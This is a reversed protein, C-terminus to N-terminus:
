KLLLLFQIFNYTLHASFSPFPSETRVTCLRLATGAILANGVALWGGYGHSLGFIIIPLAELCISKIQLGKKELRTGDKQNKKLFLLCLVKPGSWRYVIEEYFAASSAAMIMLFLNQIQIEQLQFVETGQIQAIWNWFFSNIVLFGLMFVVPLFFQSEKKKEIGFQLYLGCAIIAQAIAPFISPNVAEAMIETYEQELSFNLSGLVRVSEVLPPSILAGLFLLELYLFSSQPISDKNM